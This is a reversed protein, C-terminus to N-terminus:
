CLPLLLLASFCAPPTQQFCSSGRRPCNQSSDTIVSAAKQTVAAKLYITEDSVEVTKEPFSFCLPQSPNLSRGLVDALFPCLRYKLM